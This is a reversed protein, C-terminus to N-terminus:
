SVGVIFTRQNGNLAVNQLETHIPMVQSYDLVRANRGGTYFWNLDQIDQQTFTGFTALLAICNLTNNLASLARIKEVDNRLRTWTQLHTEQQLRCKLELFTTDPPGQMRSIQFDARAAQNQNAVEWAPPNAGARYALFPNINNGSPYPVERLLVNNPNAGNFAFGIECQLWVEWGGQFNATNMFYQTKQLDLNLKNRLTELFPQLRM